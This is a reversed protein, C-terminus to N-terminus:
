DEARNFYHIMRSVCSNVTSALEFFVNTENKNQGENLRWSYFMGVCMPIISFSASKIILKNFDGDLGDGRIGESLSFVAFVTSVLGAAADIKWNDNNQGKKFIARTFFYGYGFFSIGSIALHNM